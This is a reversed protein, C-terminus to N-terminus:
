GMHNVSDISFTSENFISYGDKSEEANDDVRMKPSTVNLDLEALGFNESNYRTHQNEPELLNNMVQKQKEGIM